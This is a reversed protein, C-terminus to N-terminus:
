PVEQSNHDTPSSNTGGNKQVNTWYCKSEILTQKALYKIEDIDEFKNEHAISEIKNNNNKIAAGM